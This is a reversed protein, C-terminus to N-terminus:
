RREVDVVGQDLVVARDAVLGDIRDRPDCSMPMMTTADVPREVDVVVGTHRAAPMSSQATQLLPARRAWTSGSSTTSTRDREVGGLQEGLDLLAHGVAGEADLADAAQEARVQEEAVGGQRLLHALHRELLQM